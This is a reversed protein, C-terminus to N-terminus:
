SLSWWEEARALIRGAASGSADEGHLRSQRVLVRSQRKARTLAAAENQIRTLEAGVESLRALLVEVEEVDVRVTEPPEEYSPRAAAAVREEPTQGLAALGSGIQDLMHLITRAQGPPVPGSARFPALVDEIKHALEALNPLKVVRSAGKLTHALRLLSGVREADGTGKELELAGQTLGDLLERAEVRFYKYPDAAM